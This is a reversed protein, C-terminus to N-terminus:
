LESESAPRVQAGREDAREVPVLSRLLVMSGQREFTLGYTKTESSIIERANQVQLRGKVEVYLDKPAVYFIDPFFVQSTRSERRELRDKILQQKVEHYTEPATIREVQREFYHETEPTRNLYLYTADRALQELYDRNVSGGNIEVAGTLTPVLITQRSTAAVIALATTSVALLACLGGLFVSRRALAKANEIAHTTNM